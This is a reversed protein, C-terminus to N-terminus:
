RTFRTSMPTSAEQWCTKSRAGAAFRRGPAISSDEAGAIAIAPTEDELVSAQLTQQLIKESLGAILAMRVLMQSRMDALM